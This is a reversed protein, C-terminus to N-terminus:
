SVKIKGTVASDILSAKYEKLKAIQQEQLSISHDLKTTERKLLKLIHKQSQLSPIPILFNNFNSSPFRWRGLKSVGQGHAYFIKHKYCMQFIKLLFQDEIGRYITRFVRYDPSIVGDYKSIDVYGTLLDMHNMAFDGKEAIQYKSYDMALQGEGSTIDKIKIGRQTISLVPPGEYGIIRKIIEVVYKLRKIKWDEPIEGIWEVGSDKTKTPKIWSDTAEDYVKKGTVLDQIIIQKREKLLEILKEKQAVAQDIKATKEDLFNAIATQESLPPLVVLTNRFDLRDLTKRISGTGKKSFETLVSTNNTLYKKYNHVITKNFEFRLVHYSFSLNEVDEDVLASVGLDEFTESSPLFVLDGKKVLNKVRNVEPTTVVMYDIKSDLTFRKNGYVDTYNIIKVESENTKSLKDIGSASFRGISALRYVNWDEPIDGLWDYGSDKYTDYKKFKGKVQIEEM